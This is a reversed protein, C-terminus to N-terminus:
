EQWDYRTGYGDACGGGSQTGSTDFVRNASNSVFEDGSKSFTLAGLAEQMGLYIGSGLGYRLHIFKFSFENSGLQKRWIGYSPSRTTTITANQVWVSMTGDKDFNWISEFEAGPVPDNTVCNKPAISVLWVGAIGRDRTEDQGYASLAFVVMSTLLVASVGAFRLFTNIKM